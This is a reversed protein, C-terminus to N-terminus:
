TAGIAKTTTPENITARLAITSTLGEARTEDDRGETEECREAGLWPPAAAAAEFSHEAQEDARRARRDDAHEREHDARQEEGAGGRAREDGNPAHPRSTCM